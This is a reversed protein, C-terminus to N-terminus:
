SSDGPAGLYGLQHSIERSADCTQQGLLWLRAWPTRLLPAAVSVSGLVRRDHDFIPAAVCRVGELVEEDDWSYGRQRVAALHERMVERSTITRPTVAPMGTALLQDVEDAALFALIAKGAATCHAPRRAGIQKRLSLTQNAEFRDITVVEGRDLMTLQVLEETADCLAQLTPRAVQRIDLGDLLRSALSLVRTGLLYRDTARDRRLYDRAQLTAMIRSLTTPHMGVARSLEMLTLGEVRDAGAIVDLVHLGKDLTSLILDSDQRIYTAPPKAGSM